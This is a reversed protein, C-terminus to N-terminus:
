RKQHVAVNSTPKGCLKAAGLTLKAHLRHHERSNSQVLDKSPEFYVIRSILLDHLLPFWPQSPWNPFIIIGTANDDIIKRLCKMILSFPPFLYFYQNGWNVTFADVAVADPDPKWSIFRDCKANCRSAFLDIQPMGFHLVVTKFAKDSLEWETDPNVIRSDFDAINNKSNVYSAFLWLNRTECWQWISRSLDSLHQFQIGGMRNVYSIATTNDVRLLISCNTENNIFSKLGLFVALLELYNIHNSKESPKWRGHVRRDGCVAGWGTGSADTYIEYKYGPHRMPCHANPITKLWWRLDDLIILSPKFKADYDDNNILALYKQRELKKTYLLGYEVAPCSAVLIGILQAFERILCQPLDLFRKVMEVIRHRKDIPLSLTLNKSNFVFGLFKLEQTPKLSSKEFNIVFGLNKLLKITENVNYSCENYTDGVCLIDDLYIVSKLGRRRLDSVVEKMVKTFVWPAVSLGYPIATFEYTINKSSNPHRYQFRLYKRDLSNVPVLLYAEKLDISAMYGNKPILKSATRYDEMKFHHTPIFMNLPKLNLIFRKLGNSKPALFIKSIFQDKVPECVSIAGLNILNQIANEMELQEISTLNNEPILYQKVKKCFPIKYGDRIWDLM